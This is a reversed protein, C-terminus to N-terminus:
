DDDVDESDVAEADDLTAHQVVFVPGLFQKAIQDATMGFLLTTMSPDSEGMVMADYDDSADVISEQPSDARSVRVDIADGSVGEESLRTAVGDLLTEVDADTEDVDAVHYLTVGVDVPAFLGSVLRVFRDVGVVGRVPVLVDELPRTANPILVALCDREETFRDITTQEDHTFVLHSEVTAGAHELIRTFDDLRRGAQEEYQSRAQGTATQDPVVHYGLLVVHGNALLEPVGEPISERELVRLPVLVSPRDPM